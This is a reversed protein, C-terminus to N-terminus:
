TLYRARWAESQAVIVWAVISKALHLLDEIHARPTQDFHSYAGAFGVRLVNPTVMMASVCDSRSVYGVEELLRVGQKDLSKALSRQFELLHPPTMGGRARSTVGTFLAGRGFRSTDVTSGLSADGQAHLDTVLVLDPLQDVPTRRFLRDSGRAFAQNGTDVVGEEEDAFVFLAEVSHHSLVQAALVFAACGFANDVTGYVMGSERDWEAQSAYMVRTLYPLQSNDTEFWFKEDNDLVIQGRASEVLGGSAPDFNLAIADRAGPSQRPECYSILPYRGDQWDATLFSIFDLHAICWIPKAAAQGFEVVVNRSGRLNRHFTHSAGAGSAQLLTEVVPGRTYSVTLTPSYTDALRKFISFGREATIWGDLSQFLSPYRAWVEDLLEVEDRM